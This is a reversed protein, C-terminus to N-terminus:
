VSQLVRKLEQRLLERRAAYFAPFDALSLGVGPPIFNDSRFREANPGLGMIWDQLPMASKEQNERGELLQLNAVRDADRKWDSIESDRVGLKRLQKQTFASSPHLHDQHFQVQEFKLNSYLTALIIFAERGKTSDLLDSINEDSVRLTREEPLEFNLVETLTLIGTGRTVSLLQKRLLSLSQDTKSGFVKKLLSRLVFQRLATRSEAERGGHFLFYAIPIVVTQSPLTKESFGFSVMLEVARSLADAISDWQERIRRISSGGFSHVKFLVPLDCLVLCSRMVFDSTFAFGNGKRNLRELLEEIRERGDEWQAVITSFMLDTRSLPVGASNVRIFIDVIEDLSDANVNFHSIIEEKFLANWLQNLVTVGQLGLARAVDPTAGHKLQELHASIQGATRFRLADRVLFWYTDPGRQLADEETLFRFQYLSTGTQENESDDDPEDPSHLLNIYLQMKAYSENKHSQKFKKRIAYSGQLAVYLSTLRQQGDLVAIIDKDGFQPSVAKANSASDREHYDKIFAYFVYKNRQEIDLPWFLFTGIPYGRLISDFLREIKDQDWVFKRQIAPLTFVNQTIKDMAEAITM